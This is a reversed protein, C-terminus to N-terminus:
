FQKWWDDPFRRLIEEFDSRHSITNVLLFYMFDEYTWDLDRKTASWKFNLVRVIVEVDKTADDLQFDSLFYDRLETILERCYAHIETRSLRGIRGERRMGYYISEDPEPEGTTNIYWLVAEVRSRVGIKRYLSYYRDTNGLIKEVTKVSLGLRNAIEKNTLGEYLMDLIALDRLKLEVGDLHVVYNGAYRAM